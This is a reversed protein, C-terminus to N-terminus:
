LWAVVEDDEDAESDTCLDNADGSAGSPAPARRYRMLATQLIKVTKVLEANRRELEANREQLSQNIAEKLGPDEDAADPADDGV